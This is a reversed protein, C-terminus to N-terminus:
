WPSMGIRLNSFDLNFDFTPPTYPTGTTVAPSVIDAQKIINVTVAAVSTNDSNRLIGQKIGALRNVMAQAATADTSTSPLGSSYYFTFAINGSSDTKLAGGLVGGSPKTNAGQDVSDFYFNHVTQPKLGRGSLEFAQSSSFYTTTLKVNSNSQPIVVNVGLNTPQSVTAGMDGYREPASLGTPLVLRTSIFNNMPM